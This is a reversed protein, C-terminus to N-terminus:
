GEQAEGRDAEHESLKTQTSSSRPGVRLAISLTTMLIAMLHLHKDIDTLLEFRTNFISIMQFGFLAQLGPLVMRAEEVALQAIKLHDGESHKPQASKSRTDLARTRTGAQEQGFIDHRPGM